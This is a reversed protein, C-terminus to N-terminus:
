LLGLDLLKEAIQVANTAAGKRLNDSVIWMNLGHPASGDRRIRGVYVEDRDAADLPLPYLSKKPDDVVSVGPSESLLSRVGETRTERETEINVSESHSFLLPVRVCTVTIRLDPIGMIKRTENIMKEEERTYGDAGFDDIQPILNSIMPYRFVKGEAFPRLCYPFEGREMRYADMQEGLEELAQRGKGSVSQYTSVVVRKLGFRTHIPWLVIVLQITSCNPNAIIGKHERLSDPNVEPVVLPVDDAMRFASSNDIVVAGARVADPAYERSVEAETAFLAVDVGQFASSTLEEIRHSKGRFQLEGGESRRSALPVFDSLPFNREELVRRMMEGVLGTAGAVAVRV